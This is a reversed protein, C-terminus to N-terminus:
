LMLDPHTELHHAIKQIDVDTILHRADECTAKRKMEECLIDIKLEPLEAEVEKRFDYLYQGKEKAKKLREIWQSKKPIEPLAFTQAMSFGIDRGFLLDLDGESFLFEEPPGTLTSFFPEQQDHILFTNDLSQQLLLDDLFDEQTKQGLSTHSLSPSSTEELSNRRSAQKDQLTSHSLPPYALAQWPSLSSLLSSAENGKLTVNEAELQYIRDKLQQRESLFQKDQAANIKELEVIRAQLDSMQQDKRDRYARQAARNQAKRKQKRELEKSKDGMLKRGPKKYGTSEIVDEDLARKHTDQSVNSRHLRIADHLIDLSDSADLLYSM